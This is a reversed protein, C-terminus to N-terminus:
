IPKVCHMENGLKFDQLFLIRPFSVLYDLDKQNYINSVVINKDKNKIIQNRLIKYFIDAGFNTQLISQMKNKNDIKMESCIKDLSENLELHIFKKTIVLHNIIKENLNTKGLLGVIM